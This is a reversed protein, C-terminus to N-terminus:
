RNRNKIKTNPEAVVILHTDIHNSDIEVSTFEFISWCIFGIPDSDPNPTMNARSNVHVELSMLTLRILDNENGTGIAKVLKKEKKSEKKPENAALVTSEETEQVLVGQNNPNLYDILKSKPFLISDHEFFSPRSQDLTTDFSVSSLHDDDDLLQTENSNPQSDLCSDNYISEEGLSSSISPTQSSKRKPLEDPEM